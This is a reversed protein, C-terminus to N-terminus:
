ISCILFYIILMYMKLCTANNKLFIDVYKKLKNRMGLSHMPQKCVIARSTKVTKKELLDDIYYQLQNFTCLYSCTLRTSVLFTKRIEEM